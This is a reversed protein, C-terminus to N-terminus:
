QPKRHARDGTRARRGRASGAPSGAPSSAPGVEKAKSEALQVSELLAAIEAPTGAIPEIASRTWVVIAVMTAASAITRWVQGLIRGPNLGIVRYLAGYNLFIRVVSDAVLAWAAGVPGFTVTGWVLLPLLVALRALGFSSLDM